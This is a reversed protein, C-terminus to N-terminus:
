VCRESFMHAYISARACVCVCVCDFVRVCARVCVCVCVCVSCHPDEQVEYSGIFLTLM